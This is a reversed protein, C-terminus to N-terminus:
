GFVDAVTGSSARAIQHDTQRKVVLIALVAAAVSIVGSAIHLWTMAILRHIDEGAMETYVAAVRSAVLRLVWAGWWCGLLPARDRESPPANHSWAHRMLQYPMVLNIFPVFFSGVAWGPSHLVPEDTIPRLNSYLRHFWTLFAIAAPLLAVNYILTLAEIRADNSEGVAQDISQGAAIQELLGVQMLYSVINAVDLALVLSLLAISIQALRRPSQFGRPAM